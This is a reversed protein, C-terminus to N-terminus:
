PSGGMQDTLSTGSVGHQMAKNMIKSLAIPFEVGDLVTAMQQESLGARHLIQVVHERSVLPDHGSGAENKEDV